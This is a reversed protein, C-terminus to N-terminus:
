TLYCNRCNRNQQYVCSLILKIAAIEFKCQFCFNHTNKDITVYLRCAVFPTCHSSTKFCHCEDNKCDKSGMIFMHCFRCIFVISGFNVVIDFIQPRTERVTKM